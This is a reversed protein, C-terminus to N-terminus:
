LPTLQVVVHEPSVHCGDDHDVHAVVTAVKYGPATVTVTYTGKREGIDSYECYLIAADPSVRQGFTDWTLNEVFGDDVATVQANCIRTGSAADVVVVHLSTGLYDDCSSCGTARPLLMTSLVLAFLPQM